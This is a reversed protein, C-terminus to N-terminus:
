KSNAMKWYQSPSLGIERKFATFFTVRSRFGVSESIAEITMNGYHETDEMRRCAEKVRFHGLLNNFSMGYKENIVQSVYSTNSGIMKALKALTFDQQCIVSADNMIDQICVILHQKNEDNLNSKSYKPQSSQLEQQKLLEDRQKLQQEFDKRLQREEAEARMVARNKEYLSKNRSRLLRYARLLVATFGLVVALGILSFLLMKRQREHRETLTRVKAEEQQLEHVFNMEGISALSMANHLSDKMELHRIKYDQSLRSDGMRRYYEALKECVTIEYDVADEGAALQEARRLVQVAKPYDHELEHTKALLLYAQLIYREPLWKANTAELQQNLWQRAQAHDGQQIKELARYYYRAYKLNQITDPINQSFLHDYEKLELDPFNDAYDIFATAYLEWNSTKYAGELSQHYLERAQGSVSKSEFGKSYLSLLNALNLSTIAKAKEYGGERCLDLAQMYNHHAEQYDFYFYQYICALDNFALAASERDKASKSKNYRNAVISFCVLASDPNHNSFHFRGKDMLQETPMNVLNGYGQVNSQEVGYCVTAVLLLLYTILRRYM